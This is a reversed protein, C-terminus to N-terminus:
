DVFHVTINHVAFLKAIKEEKKKMFAVKAEACYEEYEPTGDDTRLPLFEADNTEMLESAMGSSSFSVIIEPSVDTGSVRERPTEKKVLLWPARPETVAPIDSPVPWGVIDEDTAGLSKLFFGLCCMKNDCSRLLFSDDSGEGSLWTKRSITFEM